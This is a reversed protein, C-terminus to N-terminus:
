LGSAKGLGYTIGETFDRVYYLPEEVLHIM